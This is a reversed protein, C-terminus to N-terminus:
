YEIAPTWYHNGYIDTLRWSVSCGDFGTLKMNAVKPTSAGVTFPEGLTYTADYENDYSYEEYTFQTARLSIDFEAVAGQYENGADESMKLVIGQYASEGELLTGHIAGDGEAMMENLTGRYTYDTSWEYNSADYSAAPATAWVEIVDCIDAGGVSATKVIDMKFKLALTGDNEVKLVKSARYGPEWKAYNFLPASENTIEVEPGSNAVDYLDIDLTGAQIKNGANTVSDTFWAFTTGVLMSASLTLSLASALFTKKLNSKKAM